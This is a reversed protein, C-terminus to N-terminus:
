RIGDKRAEFFIVARWSRPFTNLLKRIKNGGYPSYGYESLIKFEKSLLETVESYTYERIHGFGGFVGNIIWDKSWYINRGFLVNLRGGAKLANPVSGLLLGDDKLLSSINSLILEDPALLHELTEYFLLIDYKLNIEKDEKHPTTVNYIEKKIGDFSSNRLLGLYETNPVISYYYASKRRVEKEILPDLISIGINGIRMGEAVYPIIRRLMFSFRYKHDSAYRREEETECYRLLEKFVWEPQFESYVNNM